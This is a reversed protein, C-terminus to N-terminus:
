CSRISAEACSLLNVDQFRALFVVSENDPIIEVLTQMGFRVGGLYEMRGYAAIEIFELVRIPIILLVRIIIIM